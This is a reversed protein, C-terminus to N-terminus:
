KSATAEPAEMSHLCMHHDPITRSTEILLGNQERCNEKGYSCFMGRGWNGRHKVLAGHVIALAVSASLGAVFLIRLGKFVM